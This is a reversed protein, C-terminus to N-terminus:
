RSPKLFYRLGFGIPLFIGWFISFRILSHTIAKFGEVEVNLLTTIVLPAYIKSHVIIDPTFIGLFLFSLILFQISWFFRRIKYAVLGLLFLGSLSYILWALYYFDFLIQM